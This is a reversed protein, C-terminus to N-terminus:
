LIDCFSFIGGRKGKAPQRGRRIERICEKFVEEVNEGSYASTEIYKASYREAISAGTESSVIEKSSNVLDKKNAVMIIPVNRDQNIQQHLEFFHELEQLSNESIMSYVFVYADKEIMWQPRLSLFDDQGATDLIEVTCMKDDTEFTKRYADEITPDWEEVFIDRIFRLTLASKGVGGTGLVSISFSEDGKTSGQASEKFFPGGTSVYLQDNNHVSELSEIETGDAQFIRKAKVSLKKGAMLKLKAFDMKGKLVIIKGIAGLENKHVVVRVSAMSFATLERM